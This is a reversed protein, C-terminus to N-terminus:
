EHHRSQLIIDNLEPCCLTYQGNEIVRKLMHSNTIQQHLMLAARGIDEMRHADSGALQKLKKHDNTLALALENRSDHRENCNVIEVGHMFRPYVPFSTRFPHAQIILLQSGYKRFFRKINTQHLFPNARLFEEDVGYLLYDSDNAPFRIEVGLIVDLGKEDGAAKAAKYGALLHDVWVQWDTSAPLEPLYDGPLHDTVVIGAYGRALYEDVMQAAPVHGCRSSEKTHLHTEYLYYKM